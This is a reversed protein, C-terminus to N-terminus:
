VCPQTPNCRSLQSLLILYFHGHSSQDWLDNPLVHLSESLPPISYCHDANPLPPLEPSFKALPDPFDALLIVEQRFSHQILVIRHLWHKTSIMAPLLDKWYEHVSKVQLCEEPHLCIPLL